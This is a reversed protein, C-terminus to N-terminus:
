DNRIFLFIGESYVVYEKLPYPAPGSTPIGDFSFTSKCCPHIMYLQSSDVVIPDCEVLPDYTCAREFARYNGFGDHYLIIGRFGADLYIYGGPQRLVQNQVENLNVDENVFAFPILNAQGGEGCANLLTFTVLYALILRNKMVKIFTSSADNIKL